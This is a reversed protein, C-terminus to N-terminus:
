FPLREQDSLVNPFDRTLVYKGSISCMYKHYALIGKNAAILAKKAKPDRVLCDWAYAMCEDCRQIVPKTTYEDANVRSDISSILWGLGYCAECDPNRKRIM